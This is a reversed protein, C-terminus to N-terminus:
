TNYRKETRKKLGMVKQRILFAVSKIKSQWDENREFGKRYIEQTSLDAKHLYTRNKYVTKTLAPFRELLKKLLHQQKLKLESLDLKSKLQEEEFMAEYLGYIDSLATVGNQEILTGTINKEIKLFTASHISRINAWDTNVTKIKPSPSKFYKYQYESLCAAHYFLHPADQFRDIKEQMNLIRLIKLIQQKKSVLSTKTVTQSNRKLKRFRRDCFICNSDIIDIWDDNNDETM